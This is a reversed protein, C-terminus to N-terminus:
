PSCVQGVWFPRPTLQNKRPVPPPNRAQEENNRGEPTGTDPLSRAGDGDRALILERAAEEDFGFAKLMDETAAKMVHGSVGFEIIREPIEWSVNLKRFFEALDESSMGSIM